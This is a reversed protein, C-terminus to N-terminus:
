HIYSMEVVLISSGDMLGSEEATLNKKLEKGNYIYKYHGENFNDGKKQKYKNIITSILDNTQSRINFHKGTLQEEFIINLNRIINEQPNMYISGIQDEMNLQNMNFDLPNYAMNNNIIQIQNMLYMIKMQLESIDNEHKNRLLENNNKLNENEQKLKLNEKKLNSFSEKMENIEKKLNNYKNYLEKFLFSNNGFNENLVLEIEKEKKKEEEYVIIILKLIDKSKIVKFKNKKFLNKFFFFLDDLSKIKTKILKTFNEPIITIEYHSIRIIMNSKSKGLLIDIFENDLKTKYIRSDLLEELEYIGNNTPKDYLLSSDM